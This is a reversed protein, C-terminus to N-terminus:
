STSCREDAIVEAMTRHDLFAWSQGAPVDRAVRPDRAGTAQEVQRWRGGHAPFAVIVDRPRACVRCEECTTDTYTAPCLAIRRGGPTTVPLDAIRDRWEPITEARKRRAYVNAVITVVPAIGLESLWDAHVPNDASLSILFGAKVAREILERNGRADLTDGLVPKHTYAIVELRRAAEVLEFLLKEDIRDGCGPLDGAQGYRLLTGSPLRRIKAMADHWPTSAREWVLRLPGSEAYCGNGDRLPCTTPCSAKEITLAAIPGTKRNRSHRTLYANMTTDEAPTM